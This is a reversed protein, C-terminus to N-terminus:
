AILTRYADWFGICYGHIERAQAETLTEIKQLLSLAEQRFKGMEVLNEQADGAVEGDIVSKTLFAVGEGIEDNWSLLLNNHYSSYENGAQELNANYFQIIQRCETETFGFGTLYFKSMAIERLHLHISSTDDTPVRICWHRLM